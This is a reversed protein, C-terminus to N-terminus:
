GMGDWGMGDMGYVETMIASIQLNGHVCWGSLILSFGFRLCSETRNFPNLTKHRPSM